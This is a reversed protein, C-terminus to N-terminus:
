HRASRRRVGKRRKIPRNHENRFSITWHEPFDLTGQRAPSDHVSGFGDGGEPKWEQCSFITGSASPLRDRAAGLAFHVPVSHEREQPRLTLRDRPRRITKAASRRRISSATM